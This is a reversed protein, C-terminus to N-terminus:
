IDATNLEHRDTPDVTQRPDDIPPTKRYIGM